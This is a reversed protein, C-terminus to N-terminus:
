KCGKRPAGSWSDHPGSGIFCFGEIARLNAREDQGEDRLGSGRCVRCTGMPVAQGRCSCGGSGNCCEAEWTGSGGCHRCALRAISSRPTMATAEPRIHAADFVARSGDPFQVEYGDNYQQCDCYTITDRRVIKAKCWPWSAENSRSFPYYVEVDQGEHFQTM